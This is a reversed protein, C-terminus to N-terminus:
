GESSISMIYRTASTALTSAGENQKAPVWSVGNTEPREEGM